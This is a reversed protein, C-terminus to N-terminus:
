VTFLFFVVIKLLYIHADALKFYNINGYISVYNVTFLINNNYIFGILM